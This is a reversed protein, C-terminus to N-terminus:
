SAPMLVSPLPPVPHNKEVQDALTLCAKARELLIKKRDPDTLKHAPASCAAAYLKCAAVLESPDM